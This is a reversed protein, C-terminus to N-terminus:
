FGMDAHTGEDKLHLLAAIIKNPIRYCKQYAGLPAKAQNQVILIVREFGWIAFKLLV